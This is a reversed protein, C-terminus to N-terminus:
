SVEGIGVNHVGIRREVTRLRRVDIGGLELGTREIVNMWGSEEWGLTSNWGHSTNPLM